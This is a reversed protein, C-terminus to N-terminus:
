GQVVEYNEGNGVAIKNTAKELADALAKTLDEMCYMVSDLSWDKQKYPCAPHCDGACCSKAIEILEKNKM